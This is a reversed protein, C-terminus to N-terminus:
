SWSCSSRLQQWGGLLRWLRVPLHKRSNKLTRPSVLPALIALYGKCPRRQLDPRQLVDRDADVACRVGKAKRDNGDSDKFLLTNEDIDSARGAPELFIPDSGTM